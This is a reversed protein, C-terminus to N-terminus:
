ILKIFPIGLIQSEDFDTEYVAARIKKQIVKEVHDVLKNMYTKNVNGVVVLDVFPSEKGEAWDNTLFVSEVAGLKRFVEEILSDLGIQKMIFSRLTSFMPHNPNAKYQKVASVSEDVEILKLESLKNLELRVTNSSVGFDKELGRLYVRSAPNLLLRTLLKIRIKGNLLIDLTM